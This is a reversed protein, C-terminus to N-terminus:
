NTKVKTRYRTRQDISTLARIQPIPLSQLLKKSQQRQDTESSITSRTITPSSMERSIFKQSRVSETKPDDYNTENQHSLQSHVRYSTEEPLENM